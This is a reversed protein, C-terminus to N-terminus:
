KTPKPLFLEDTRSLLWRARRQMILNALRWAPKADVDIALARDLQAKFENLDQQQVCVTEAWSVLPGAQQGGSLAVARAYHTRARSLPDGAVGQRSFEYTIFFTHLAGAEFSEDLAMAREMLAEAIPLDAILIPNDKSVAIAAFWSLACWYTQPVDTKKLTQVALRADTQLSKSIGPHALELGRLAYNRARLYLRGARKRLRQAAEFDQAELEDAEQQVFAYAYQTFGSSTAFLLGTHQPNEDLLCEMLKLSFPVAAKILEPDDDAAFTTGGAALADGVRNVALRQISCGSAALLLMVLLTHLCIQMARM